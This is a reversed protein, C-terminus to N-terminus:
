RECLLRLVILLFHLVQVYLEISYEYRQQQMWVQQKSAFASGSILITYGYLLCDLLLSQLLVLIFTHTRLLVIVHLM